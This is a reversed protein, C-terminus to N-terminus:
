RTCRRALEEGKGSDEDAAVEEDDGGVVNTTVVDGADASMETEERM